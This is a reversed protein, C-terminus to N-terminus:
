SPPRARTLSAHRRRSCPASAHTVQDCADSVEDNASGLVSAVLESLFDGEVIVSAHFIGEADLQTQISTMYASTSTADM